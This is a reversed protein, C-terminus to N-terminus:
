CFLLFDGDRVMTEFVVKSPSSSSTWLSPSFSDTMFEPLTDDDAAM